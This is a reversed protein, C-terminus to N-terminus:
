GPCLRYEGTMPTNSEGLLGILAKAKELCPHQCGGETLGAWGPMTGAMQHPLEFACSFCEM